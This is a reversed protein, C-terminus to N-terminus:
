LFPAVVFGVVMSGILAVGLYFAITRWTVVARVAVMAPITTTAGALLFTVAAAPLMGQTLLGATIPIAGVGNLYLPVGVLAAIPVALWDDHGLVASVWDQPVYRVIVAQLVIALLLWKGMSLVDRWVDKGFRRWSIHRANDKIVTSWPRGDDFMMPDADGSDCSGSGCDADTGASGGSPEDSAGGASGSTPVTAPVTVAMRARVPENSHRLVDRFGGRREIILVILGAGISLIFAGILRAWAIDIGLYAASLAFIEPDMAPSAVWFAMVASLPVGGRLLRRILPVVTFSCFPSLAGVATTMLVGLVGHRTFARRALMDLNLHQVAVGLVIALLFWPALEVVAEATFQLLWWAESFM